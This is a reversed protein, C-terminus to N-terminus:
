EEESEGADNADLIGYHLKMGRVVDDPLFRGKLTATWEKGLCMKCENGPHNAHKGYKGPCDTLHPRCDELLTITNELYSLEFIGYDPDDKRKLRRFKVCKLLHAGGPREALASVRERIQRLERLIANFEELDAFAEEAHPQVPIGWADRLKRTQTIVPEVSPPVVEPRTTRTTPVPTEDEDPAEFKARHSIQGDQEVEGSGEFKARHSIQGSKQAIIERAVAQTVKEGAEARAIAEARAEEPTTPAALLYLARAEFEAGHPIQGMRKAVGMLRAATDHSWSFEKGLWQGFQGHPLRDKVEILRLGIEVVDQAARRMLGRIESTKQQVVVRTEADLDAYTFPAVEGAPTSIGDGQSM